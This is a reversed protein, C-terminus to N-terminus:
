NQHLTKKLCKFLTSSCLVINSLSERFFDMEGYSKRKRNQDSTSQSSFLISFFFNEQVKNSTTIVRSIIRAELFVLNLDKDQHGVPQIICDSECNEYVAQSTTDTLAVHRCYQEAKVQTKRIRSKKDRNKDKLIENAKKTPTGQERHLLCIDTKFIKNLAKWLLLTSYNLSIRATAQAFLKHEKIRRWTWRM